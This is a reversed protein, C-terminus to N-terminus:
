DRVREERGEVEREGRSTKLCVVGRIEMVEDKGGGGERGEKRGKRKMESEKREGGERKIDRRGEEEYM